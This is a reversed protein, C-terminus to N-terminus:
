TLMLGQIQGGCEIGLMRYTLSYDVTLQFKKSWDWHAHEPRGGSRSHFQTFVQQAAVVAEREIDVILFAGVGKNSAAELILVPYKESM